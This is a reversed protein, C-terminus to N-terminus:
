HAWVQAFQITAKSLDAAHEFRLKGDVFVRMAVSATDTYPNVLQVLLRDAPEIPITQEFPLDDQALLLTDANVVVTVDQQEEESWVPGFERSVMYVLQVPTEGTIEVHAEDPLDLGTGRISDCAATTTALSGALLLAAPRLSILRRDIM